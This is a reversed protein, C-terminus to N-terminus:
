FCLNSFGCHHLLLKGTFFQPYKKPWITAEELVQKCVKLGGVDNLKVDSFKVPGLKPPSDAPGFGFEATHTTTSELNLEKKVAKASDHYPQLQKKFEEFAKTYLKDALEWKKLTRAKTADTHAKTANTADTHAKTAEALIATAHALSPTTSSTTM